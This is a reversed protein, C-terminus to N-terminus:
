LRGRSQKRASRGQRRSASCQLGGVHLPDRFPHERCGPRHFSDLRVGHQDARRRHGGALSSIVFVYTPMDGPAATGTGHVRAYAQSLQTKAAATGLVALRKDIGDKLGAVYLTGIAHGIARYQGAGALIPIKLNTPDVRWTRLEARRGAVGDLQDQVAKFDIGAPVLGLYEGGALHPVQDNIEDGDAKLPTDIHLFQWGAPIDGEIGHEHMWRRIQDKLFRLTKGGSGGLGIFLFRNYM